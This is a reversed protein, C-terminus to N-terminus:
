AHKEGGYACPRIVDDESVVSDQWTAIEKCFDRIKTKRWDHQFM